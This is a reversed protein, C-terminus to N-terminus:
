AKEQLSHRENRYQAVATWAQNETMKPFRDRLLEVIEESIIGPNNAIWYAMRIWLEDTPPM